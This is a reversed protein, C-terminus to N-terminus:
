RVYAGSSTSFISEAFSLFVGCGNRVACSASSANSRPSTSRCSYASYRRAPWSCKRVVTPLIMKL